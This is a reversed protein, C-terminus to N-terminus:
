RGSGAKGNNTHCIRHRHSCCYSACFSRGWHDPISKNTKITDNNLIGADIQPRATNITYAFLASFTQSSIFLSNSLKSFGLYQRSAARNAAFSHKAPLNRRHGAAIGGGFSFTLYLRENVFSQRRCAAHRPALITPFTLKEAFLAALRMLKEFLGSLYESKDTRAGCLLRRKIRNIWVVRMTESEPMLGDFTLRILNHLNLWKCRFVTEGAYYM